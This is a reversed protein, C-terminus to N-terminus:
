SETKSRTSRSHVAKPGDRTELAEAARKRGARSKSSGAQGHSSTMLQGTGTPVLGNSAQNEDQGTRVDAAVYKSANGSSDVAPQPRGNGTAMEDTQSSDATIHLDATSEGTLQGAAAAASTGPIPVTMGSASGVGNSAHSGAEVAHSSSPDAQSSGAASIAMLKAAKRAEAETRKQAAATQKAM